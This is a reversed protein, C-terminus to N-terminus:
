AGSPCFKKAKFSFLYIKNSYGFAVKQSKIQISVSKTHIKINKWLLNSNPDFSSQNKTLIEGLRFCGLFAVCCACWAAKAKLRSDFVTKIKSKINKLIQFTVAKRTHSSKDGPRGANKFRSLLAKSQNKSKKFKKFGLFSQISNVWKRALVNM